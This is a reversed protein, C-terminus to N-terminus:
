ASSPPSRVPDLLSNIFSLFHRTFTSNLSPDIAPQPSSFTLHLRSSSTAASIMWSGGSGVHCQQALWSGELEFSDDLVKEPLPVVGLNSLEFTATRAGKHGARQQKLMLPVDPVFSMMGVLGIAAETKRRTNESAERAIKWFSTTKPSIRASFDTSSIFVGVMRQSRKGISARMSIPYNATILHSGKKKTSEDDDAIKSAVFSAAAVLLGHVTCKHDRASQVLLATTEADLELSRINTTRLSEDSAMSPIFPTQSTSRPFLSLFLNIPAVISPPLLEPISVFLKSALSSFRPRLDVLDDLAYFPVIEQSISLPSPHSLAEFFDNAVIPASTGDAILHFFCFILEVHDDLPSSVIGLRWLPPTPDFLDFKKNIQDKVAKLWSEDGERTYHSVSFDIDENNVFAEPTWIKVVTPEKGGILSPVVTARLSEHALSVRRMASVLLDQDLINRASEKIQKMRVTFCFIRQDPIHGSYWRELLGLSRRFFVGEEGAEQTPVPRKEIPVKLRGLFFLSVTLVVVVIIWVFLSM